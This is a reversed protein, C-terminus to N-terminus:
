KEDRKFLNMLYSLVTVFGAFIVAVAIDIENHFVHEFSDTWTWNPTQLNWAANDVAGLLIFLFFMVGFLFIPKLIRITGLFGGVLGFVLGIVILATASFLYSSPTISSIIPSLYNTISISIPIGFIEKVSSSVVGSVIGGVLGALLGNAMGHVMDSGYGAYVGFVLGAIIAAYPELEPVFYGMLIVFVSYLISGYVIKAYDLRDQM